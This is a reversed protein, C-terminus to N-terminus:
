GGTKIGFCLKIIGCVMTVFAIMAIFMGFAGRAMNVKEELKQVRIILTEEKEKDM